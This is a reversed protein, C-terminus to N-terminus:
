RNSIGLADLRATQDQAPLALFTDLQAALEVRLGHANVYLGGYGQQELYPTLQEEPIGDIIRAAFSDGDRSELLEACLRLDDMPAAERQVTFAHTIRDDLYLRALERNGLMRPQPDAEGTHTM